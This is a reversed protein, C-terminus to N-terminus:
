FQNLMAYYLSLPFLTAVIAVIRVIFSAGDDGDGIGAGMNTGNGGIDM